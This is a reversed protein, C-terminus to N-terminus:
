GANTNTQPQSELLQRERLACIFCSMIVEPLNALDGSGKIFFEAHHSAVIAMLEESASAGLWIVPKRFFPIQRATDLPASDPLNGDLITADSHESLALGESLTRAHLFSLSIHPCQVQFYKTLAATLPIVDSDDVILVRFLSPPKMEVQTFTLASPTLPPDSSQIGGLGIPRSPYLGGPWARRSPLEVQQVM